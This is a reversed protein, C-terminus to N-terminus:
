LLTPDKLVSPITHGSLPWHFDNTLKDARWQLTGGSALGAERWGM